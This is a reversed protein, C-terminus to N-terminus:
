LDIYFMRSIFPLHFKYLLYLVECLKLSYLTCLLEYLCLRSYNVSFKKYHQLVSAPGNVIWTIDKMQEIFNDYLSM